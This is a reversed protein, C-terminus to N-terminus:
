PPPRDKKMEKLTDAVSPKSIPLGVLYLIKVVNKDPVIKIIVRWKGIDAYRLNRDNDGVDVSAKYPYRAFRIDFLDLLDLFDGVEPEDAFAKPDERYLPALKARESELARKVQGDREIAFRSGAM